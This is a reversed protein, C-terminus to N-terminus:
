SVRWRDMITEPAGCAKGQDSSTNSSNRKGESLLLAYLTTNLRHPWRCIAQTAGCAAPINYSIPAFQTLGVDASPLGLLTLLMSPYMQLADVGKSRWLFAAPSSHLQQLDDTPALSPPCPRGPMVGLVDVAILYVTVIMLSSTQLILTLCPFM